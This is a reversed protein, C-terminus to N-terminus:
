GQHQFFFGLHASVGAGQAVVLPWLLVQERFRAKRRGGRRAAGLSSCASVVCVCTAGQAM